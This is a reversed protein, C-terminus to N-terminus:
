INARMYKIIADIISKFVIFPKQMRTDDDIALIKLTPHHYSYLLHCLQLDLKWSPGMSEMGEYIFYFLYCDFPLVVM